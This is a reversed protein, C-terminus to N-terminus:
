KTANLIKRRIEENMHQVIIDIIEETFFLSWMELPIRVNIAPDNPGPIHERSVSVSYRERREPANRWKHKNKGYIFTKKRGAINQNVKVDNNCEEETDSDEQDITFEEENNSLTDDSHEENHDNDYLMDHIESLSRVEMKVEAFLLRM